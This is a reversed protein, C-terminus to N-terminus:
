CAALLCINDGVLSNHRDTFGKGSCNNQQNEFDDIRLIDIKREIFCGSPEGQNIRRCFSDNWTVGVPEYRFFSGNRLLFGKEGVLSGDNMTIHHQYWGM